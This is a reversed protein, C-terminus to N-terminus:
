INVYLTFFLYINEMQSLILILLTRWGIGEYGFNLKWYEWFLMMGSLSEIGEEGQELQAEYKSSPFKDNDIIKVRAVHLYQGLECNSAHELRVKFESISAWTDDAIVELKVPKTYEGDKFTVEGHSEKYRVGAKASADETKYKVKCTGRMGGM